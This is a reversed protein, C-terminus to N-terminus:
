RRAEDEIGEKKLKQQVESIWSMKDIIPKVVNQYDECKECISKNNEFIYEPYCCTNLIECRVKDRGELQRKMKLWPEYLLDCWIENRKKMDLPPLPVAKKYEYDGRDKLGYEKLLKVAEEAGCFDNNEANAM